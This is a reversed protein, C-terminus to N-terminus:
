GDIVIVGTGKHACLIARCWPFQGRASRAISKRRYLATLVIQL